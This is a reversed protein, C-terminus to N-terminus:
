KYTCPLTDFGPWAWARGPVLVRRVAINEWRWVPVLCSLLVTVLGQTEGPFYLRSLVPCLGPQEWGARPVSDLEMAKATLVGLVSTKVSLECCVLEWRVPASLPLM